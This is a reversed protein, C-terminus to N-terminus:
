GGLTCRRTVRAQVLILDPWYLRALAKADGGPSLCIQASAASGGMRGSLANRVRHPVSNRGKFSFSWPHPKGEIFHGQEQHGLLRLGVRARCSLHMQHGVEALQSSSGSKARDGPLRAHPTFKPHNSFAPRAGGARRGFLGDSALKSMFAEVFSPGPTGNAGQSSGASFGKIRNSATVLFNSSKTAM